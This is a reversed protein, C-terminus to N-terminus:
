HKSVDHTPPRKPTTKYDVMNSTNVMLLIAKELLHYTEASINDQHPMHIFAASLYNKRQKITHLLRYFVYNCLYNGADESVRLGLKHAIDTIPYSSEHLASGSKIISPHTPKIGEVDPAELNCQNHAYKEIRPSLDSAAMGLCIVHQPQFRYIYQNLLQFSKKYACPLIVHKTIYGLDKLSQALVLAAEQTSNNDHNLFPGFGSILIRKSDLPVKM